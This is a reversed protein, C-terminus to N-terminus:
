KSPWTNDTQLKGYCKIEDAFEGTSVGRCAWRIEGGPGWFADWKWDIDMIELALAASVAIGSCKYSAHGKALCLGQAPTNVSSCQYSPLGTSLCIGRSITTSSNCEYSDRGGSLCLAAGLTTSSSCQYSPRGGSLCIAQAIKLSSNCEYSPRGGALCIGQALKTSSTCEYSPRGSELCIQQGSSDILEDETPISRDIIRASIVLPTIGVALSQEAAVLAMIGLLTTRANRFSNAM